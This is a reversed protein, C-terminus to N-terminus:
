SSWAKLKNSVFRIIFEHEERGRGSVTLPEGFCIHVPKTPNIKGFEKIRNGNGWADTKLAFPVIPVGARKALKVGITNFQKPDFEVKRTTQPFVVISINRGLREEGGELVAKLDDRPNVRGVVIPDRHIMVHKFVPYEILEKKVIYTVDRYPQIICPLVFTELTSMHNGVFVCPSDLNKFTAFNEIEFTIGTSELANLISMSSKVWEESTYKERRSLNAAKLVISIIKPYFVWNPAKRAFISIRREPSRYINEKTLSDM